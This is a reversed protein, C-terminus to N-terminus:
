SSTPQKVLVEEAVQKPAIEKGSLAKATTIVLGIWLIDALFLHTMAMWIPVRLWTSVFGLLVQLGLITAVFRAYPIAGGLRKEHILAVFILLSVGAVISIFPHWLRLRILFHATPSLGERLVEATSGPPFLTDGLSTVAGSMGAFITALLAISSWWGISRRSKDFSTEVENGGWLATLTLSGLLFFTNVLHLALTIARAHSDDKEVLGALVLWAGVAASVLTFLLSFVTTKRVAHGKPFAEFSWIVLGLVLALSIGSSLRHVFEIITELRPSLPIVEGNCLPWHSGCGAGSGTHRVLAGWLIVLVNYGLVAYAFKVFNNRKM